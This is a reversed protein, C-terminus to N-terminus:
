PRTKQELILKGAAIKTEVLGLVDQYAKVREQYRRIEDIKDSELLNSMMQDIGSLFTSKLLKWGETACMQELLQSEHLLQEEQVIRTRELSEDTEVGTEADFERPLEPLEDSM